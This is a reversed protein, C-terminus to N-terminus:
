RRSNSPIQQRVPAGQGGARIIYRISRISRIFFIFLLYNSCCAIDINVLLM